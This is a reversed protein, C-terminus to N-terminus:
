TDREDGKIEESSIAGSGSPQLVPVEVAGCSQADTEPVKGISPDM